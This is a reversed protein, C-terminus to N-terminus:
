VTVHHRGMLSDRLEGPWGHAGGLVKEHRGLLANPLTVSSRRVRRTANAHEPNQTAVQLSLEPRCSARLARQQMTRTHLADLMCRTLVCRM